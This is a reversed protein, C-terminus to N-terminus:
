TTRDLKFCYTCLKESDYLFMNDVPIQTNTIFKIGEQAVIGGVVAITSVDIDIKEETEELLGKLYIKV